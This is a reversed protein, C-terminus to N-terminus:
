DELLSVRRQIGANNVLVDVAPYQRVVWDRFAVRESATALDAVHTVLGPSAAQVERLTDERRGCVIVKSGARLFRVAIALGIGSAGGTVVVTRNNLDMRLDRASDGGIM